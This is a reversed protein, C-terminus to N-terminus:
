DLMIVSLKMKYAKYAASLTEPSYKVCLLCFYIIVIYYKYMVINNSSEFSHKYSYKITFRSLGAGYQIISIMSCMNYGVLSESSM